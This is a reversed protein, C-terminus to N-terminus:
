LSAQQFQGYWVALRELEIYLEIPNHEDLWTNNQMRRWSQVLSAIQPAVEEWASKLPAMLADPRLTTPSDCLPCLIM